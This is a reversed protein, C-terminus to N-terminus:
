SQFLYYFPFDFQWVMTRNRTRLNTRFCNLYVCCITNRAQFVSYLECFYFRFYNVLNWQVFRHMEIEFHISNFYFRVAVVDYSWNLNWNAMKVLLFCIIGFSLAIWKSVTKRKWRVSSARGICLSLSPNDCLVMLFASLSYYYRWWFFLCLINTKRHVIMMRMGAWGLGDYVWSHRERDM